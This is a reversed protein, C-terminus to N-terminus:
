LSEFKPITIQCHGEVSSVDAGSQTPVERAVSCAGAVARRDCESDSERVNAHVETETPRTSFDGKPPSKEVREQSKSQAPSLLFGAAREANTGFENLQYVFTTRNRSKFRKIWHRSTLYQVAAAFTAPPLGTLACLQSQAVSVEAPRRRENWIYLLTYYLIRSSGSYKESTAVASFERFLDLLTM